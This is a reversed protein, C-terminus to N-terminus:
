GNCDEGENSGRWDALRVLTELYALRFPGHEERLRVVRALWSPRGGDDEGLEMPSLDISFPASTEGNGLDVEPMPDNDRLGRAFRIEPDGPPLENPLSRISARVKGHHAAILFAILDADKEGNAHNLWALASALEHRFGRRAEEGDSTAVRYNPIGMGGSKAWLIGKESDEAQVKESDHMAMQFAPHAKGVDHWLAATVISDPPIGDLLGDLREKLKQAQGAVKQLHQTLPMPVAGLMDADNVALEGPEAPIEPVIQHKRDGTWGLTADYGGADVHLLLVM